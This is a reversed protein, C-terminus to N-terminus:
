TNLISKLIRMVRERDLATKLEVWGQWHLRGSTPCRERQYGFRSIQEDTVIPCKAKFSTFAWYKYVSM